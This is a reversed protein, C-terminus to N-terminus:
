VAPWRSQMSQGQRRFIKEALRRYNGGFILRRQEATLDADLVKSMETAFSRSPGHGGWTIREAGLHRVAYDVAGSHSDSGAFEFYINPYPRVVQVGIEWDGGSHGCILPVNPFRRSLNVVHMPTNEDPLTGGGVRRPSGGVSLFTHIYVIANLEAALRIIPDNGPGDCLGLMYKIGICPGRRIWREMKACSKEPADPHIRIIGSLHDREQTLLKLDADDREPVVEMALDSPRVGGVDLAVLREVGMRDAYVMMRRHTSTYDHTAYQKDMGADTDSGNLLLGHYHGDWIRLAQRERRTPLGYDAPDLAFDNPNM